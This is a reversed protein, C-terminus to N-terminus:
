KKLHCRTESPSDRCFQRIANCDFFDICVEEDIEHSMGSLEEYRSRRVSSREPNVEDSFRRYNKRVWVRPTELFLSYEASSGNLGVYYGLGICMLPNLEDGFPLSRNVVTKIM